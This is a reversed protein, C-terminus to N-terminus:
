IQLKDIVLEWDNKLPDDRSLKEFCLHIETKLTDPTARQRPAWRKNLKDPEPRQYSVALWLKNETGKVAWLRRQLCIKIASDSLGGDSSRPRVWGIKGYDFDTASILRDEASGREALPCILCCPLGDADLGFELQKFHIVNYVLNMWRAILGTHNQPLQFLDSECDFTGSFVFDSNKEILNYFKTPKIAINTMLRKEHDMTAAAGTPRQRIMVQERVLGALNLDHRSGVWRYDGNGSRIREFVNTNVQRLFLGVLLDTMGDQTHVCDIVALWVSPAKRVITLSISLGFNTM